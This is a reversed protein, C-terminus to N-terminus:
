EDGRIKQWKSCNLSADQAMNFSVGKLIDKLNCPDLNKKYMRYREYDSQKKDGINIVGCFSDEVLFLIAEVFKAIPLKSSFADVASSQFPINEPDFFSGRIICHNKLLRVACEAGLKTWGYFNYPLTEDDEKYNGRMGDYVGDTSIHIFRINKKIEEEKQIVTIVLNSTGVINTKVAQDSHKECESMRAMAATHIVTDFNHSRVWSEVQSVNTIDLESRGPTYLFHPLKRVHTVLALGLKGTAGTVLISKQAM